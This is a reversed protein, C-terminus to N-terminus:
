FEQSFRLGMTRPQNAITYIQGNPYDPDYGSAGCIYETCATFRNFEARQDFLNKVYFNLTWNNKRIGASLDFVTYAPLDGLIDRVELRLDSTRKGEHVMSGQIFPEYGKWDFTYRATLNGKFEATVPLRSGKPAEPTACNTEPVGDVNVYGCYNATLKADYIAFGGSIALNYTAAWNLDVELGDIQAQNANKIETLGNAGLIAFQFDKWKQRFVAGNFTMRNDMWSTKWGLELNTLYDSLYPPLTGRRNVGGPRYGESWTGYILKESDLKYTLNFKGLTGSEKTTKDFV